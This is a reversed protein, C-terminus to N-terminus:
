IRQLWLYKAIGISDNIDFYPIQKAGQIMVEEMMPPWVVAAVVNSLEYLLLLDEKEHIMVVKPYSESKFGEILIYDYNVFSAILESLGSGQEEMRTTRSASTIAIGTAGAERQRWTDTEPLDIQFFDHADHKIVAVTHGLQKLLPILLCILTTKGSNKYGVFQCVSPNRDTSNNLQRRQGKLVRHSHRLKKTRVVVAKRGRRM